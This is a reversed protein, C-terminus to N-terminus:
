VAIFVHIAMRKVTPRVMAQPHSAATVPVLRKMGMITPVETQAPRSEALSCRLLYSDPIEYLGTIKPMRQEINQITPNGHYREIRWL